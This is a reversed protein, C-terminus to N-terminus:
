YMAFFESTLVGQQICEEFLYSAAVSASGLPDEPNSEHWTEFENRAEEPKLEYLLHFGANRRLIKEHRRVVVSCTSITATGFDDANRAAPQTIRFIQANEVKGARSPLKRRITSEPIEPECSDRGSNFRSIASACWRWISPDENPLDIPKAPRQLM